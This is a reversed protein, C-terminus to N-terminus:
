YSYIAAFLSFVCGLIFAFIPFAYLGMQYENKAEIFKIDYKSGYWRRKEDANKTGCKKCARVIKHGILHGKDKHYVKVNPERLEKDLKSGCTECYSLSDYNFLYKQKFYEELLEPNRLYRLSRFGLRFFIAFSICALIFIPNM